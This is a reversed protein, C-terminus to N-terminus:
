QDLGQWCKPCFPNPNQYNQNKNIQTPEFMELNGSESAPALGNCHTTGLPDLVQVLHDWPTALMLSHYQVAGPRSASNLPGIYIIYLKDKFTEKGEM